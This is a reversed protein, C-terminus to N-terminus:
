QRTLVIGYVKKAGSEKLVKACEFLTSGTTAIDDILFINKEKIQNIDFDKTNFKFANKTNLRRKQRNKIEMQPKTYRNRLLAKEWVPIELNPTLNTGLYQALLLSQNFGRWRLRRAHLPVPIIIEPLPLSSLLISKELIKGLSLSIDSIFRYKYYHILKALITKEKNKRYFSSVLIGDIDNKYKCSFCTEGNPTTTKKCIPCIQETKIIIKAFCEDCLWTGVKECSVCYIPFITDLIFKKIDM